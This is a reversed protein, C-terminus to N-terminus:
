EDEDKKEIASLDINPAKVETGLNQLEAWIDPQSQELFRLARNWNGYLRKMTAWRIPGRGLARYEQASLIKGEELMFLGLEGALVVKQRATAM